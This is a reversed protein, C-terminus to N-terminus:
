KHIVVCPKKDSNKGNAWINRFDKESIVVRTGGAPDNAYVNGGKIDTVLLYHGEGATKDAYDGQVPVIVLGGSKIERKLYDMADGIITWWSFHSNPLYKNAEDILEPIYAGEDPNMGSGKILQKTPINKGFYELAMGLATPGCAAQGVSGNKPDNQDRLPVEKKPPAEKKDSFPALGRWTDGAFVNNIVLVSACLFFLIVVIKKILSKEM